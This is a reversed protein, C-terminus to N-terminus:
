NWTNWAGRLRTHSGLGLFRSLESATQNPGVKSTRHLLRMALVEHSVRVSGGGGFNFMKGDFCALDSTNSLFEMLEDQISRDVCVPKSGFHFTGPDVSIGAKLARELIATLRNEDMHPVQDDLIIWLCPSSIHHGYDRNFTLTSCSDGRTLMMRSELTFEVSFGATDLLLLQTSKRWRLTGRAM